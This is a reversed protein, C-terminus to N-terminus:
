ACIYTYIYYIRTFCIKIIFRYPFFSVLVPIVIRYIHSVVALRLLSFPVTFNIHTKGLAYIKKRARFPTLCIQSDLCLTMPLIRRFPHKQSTYSLSPPHSPPPSLSLFCYHRIALGVSGLACVRKRCLSNTPRVLRFSHRANKVMNPFSPFNKHASVDLM